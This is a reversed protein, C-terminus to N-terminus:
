IGELGRLAAGVAIAYSPGMVRLDNELIPPYFISSFPDAVSVPKALNKAFYDTIGPMNASAGALIVKRIEKKESQFFSSFIKKIEQLILDILPSMAEETGNKQSLLGHEKKLKEAELYELGLSKAIVSTFDSGSTDFSHSVKLIGNDIVNITTSRAGIDVLSVVGVKEEEGILARSLSFVEAELSVIELGAGEAIQQYQQIVDNPVAVLLIKISGTGGNVAEQREVIQWDLTVGQLPLPIHQPAEYNVAQPIEEDTMAPLTITTFFTSFDPISFVAKNTKFNAEKAVAAVARVVDRNSFSLTSREFTRFPKEYLASAQMEGYNELKRRKGAYAMEVIKVSFTGIDIGLFGKPTM